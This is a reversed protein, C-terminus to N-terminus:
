KGCFRAYTAEKALRRKREDLDMGHFHADLLDSARDGQGAPLQLMARLVPVDDATLLNMDLMDLAALVENTVDDECEWANV